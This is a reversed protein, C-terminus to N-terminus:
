QRHLGILNFIPPIGGSVEDLENESLEKRAKANNIATDLMEDVGEDALHDPNKRSQNNDEKSQESM